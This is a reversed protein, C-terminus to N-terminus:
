RWCQLVAMAQETFAAGWALEERLRANAGNLDGERLLSWPNVPQDYPASRKISLIKVKDMDIEPHLQRLIQPLFSGVRLPEHISRDETVLRSIKDEATSARTILRRLQREPELCEQAAAVELVARAGSSVPVGTLTLLLETMAAATLGDLPKLHVSQGPTFPSLLVIDRDGAQGTKVADSEKM